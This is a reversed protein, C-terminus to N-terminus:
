RPRRRTPKLLAILLSYLLTQLLARAPDQPASLIWDITGTVLATLEAELLGALAHHRLIHDIAVQLFPWLLILAAGARVAPMISHPGSNTHRQTM